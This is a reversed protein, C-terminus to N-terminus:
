ADRGTVQAVIALVAEVTEEFDLDSSDLTVVGDAAVHFQAVTSDDADRRLVQDHTAAVAAEDDSGHVDRARRALRAEQSATLLIRADADPAVVTTIDRGEAVIGRGHSFSTVDAQEVIAARQRRRLEDRVALNTAVASVAASIATERIADAIDTGAVVVHPADPDVGQDLPLERVCRAVAAQDDLPVGTHLCWWTAARYMAGTDLYALGLRRAAERSVSSKGSGSPGDVAVVLASVRGAEM